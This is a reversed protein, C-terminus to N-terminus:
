RVGAAQRSAPVAIPGSGPTKWTRRRLFIDLPLLALAALLFNNTLDRARGGGAMRVAPPAFVAAPGPEVRGHGIEALERLGAEDAGTRLFERPYDRAHGFVHPREGPLDPSSVALMLNGAGAAEGGGTGPLPVDARYLGPGIQEAPFARTQGTGADLLAVNVALGDRFAGAPSVADIELRLRDEGVQTTRVAFGGRADRRLLTRVFQTWFQGFGPWGLWEAAWRSKADSTWAATQGLGYRWTALLPEGTETVLAVEATPKAKTANFGLLLPAHDWDVGATIPSPGAPRANFPEEVLSSQAVKMTETSFIQPLNRADETLYFRGGGAEALARLFATDRDREGGLGVVSTTIREARMAAAVDLATGTGPTGDGMEGAAKEEADAADSFLICHKIKANAERLVRFADVLSTYVYIGGGGANIAGIREGVAGRAMEGVRALPVVSHVVTDVATLGFVDRPGLVNLALTAGQDALSIKTQGGVTATMSGSRDLVVLLAVTPTEQRDDHELRVPLMTEVPTRYYGGVGFSNEGGLLAFGGGFDGVWQRYLEMTERPLGLASVDSLMVLDFRQLEELTRPLGAPGRTEVDVREARLAGALPAASREDGDVLLVRPPGALAVAAGARNNEVRTDAEPLVEAEFSALGGAGPARVNPFVVANRGPTLEVADRHDVLFGDAYLNVRAHTAVNSELTVRADFAEGPALSRPTELGAALVEPRTPDRLAVTWLEGGAAALRGAAERATGATDNGDSLLVVRRAAVGGPLTAAAFDLARGLDTGARESEPFDPWNGATLGEEGPARWVAVKKAFGLVGVTDGARRAAVSAEVFARAQARAESGVSASDDVVFLVGLRDGAAARWRVGALALVVCTLLAARVGLCARRGAPPLEALSRRRGLLLAGAAVALLALFAPHTLELM